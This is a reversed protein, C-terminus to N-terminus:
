NVTSDVTYYSVILSNITTYFCFSIVFLSSGNATIDNKRYSLILHQEKNKNENYVKRTTM